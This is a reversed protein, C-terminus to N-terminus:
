CGPGAQRCSLRQSGTTCQSGATGRISLSPRSPRTAAAESTPRLRDLAPAGSPTIGTHRRCLGRNLRGNREGESRRGRYVEAGSGHGPDQRHRDRSDHQHRRGCRAHAPTTAGHCRESDGGSQPQQEAAQRMGPDFGGRARRRGAQGTGVTNDRDVAHYAGVGPAGGGAQDTDDYLQLGRVAPVARAGRGAAGKPDIHAAPLCARQHAALKDRYRQAFRHHRRPDSLFPPGGRQRSWGRKYVSGVDRHDRRRRWGFARALRDPRRHEVGQVACAGGGAGEELRQDDPDAIVQVSGYRVVEALCAARM